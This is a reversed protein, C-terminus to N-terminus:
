RLAAESHHFISMSELTKNNSKFNFVSRLFGQEYYKGEIQENNEDVLGYTVPKTPNIKQIKFLKRNFNTTYGKSYLNRRDPVRVYDGVQFKPQKRSAGETRSALKATNHKYYINKKNPILKQNTSMEFPTMKTTGHVRNNFIEMAADLHNLWCAKGEIYMPERILDLLTRNFRDVFVAKLDSHTSYIHINQEKLFDM